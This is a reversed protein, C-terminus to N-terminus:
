SRKGEANFNEILESLSGKIEEAVIKCDIVTYVAVTWGLKEFDPIDVAFRMESSPPIEVAYRIGGLRDEGSAYDFVHPAVADALTFAQKLDRAIATREFWRACIIRLVDGPSYAWRGNPMLTGLNELFGHRRWDRLMVSTVSPEFRSIDRPDYMRRM